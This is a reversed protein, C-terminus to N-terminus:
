RKRYESPTIGCHRKFYRSFLSPAPFSMQDSIENQTLDSHRLLVKIRSITASEIWFSATKGSVQTVVTSLYQKNLHLQGAYFGMDRRKQCHTNVLQIFESFIAMDRNSSQSVGECQMLIQNLYHLLSALLSHVCIPTKCESQLMFWLTQMLGSLLALNNPSPMFMYDYVRQKLYPYTMEQLVMDILDDCLYLGQMDFDDSYSDLQLISQRTVVLVAGKTLHRPILNITFDAEGSTVIGIQLLETQYPRNIELHPLTTQRISNSMSLRETTFQYSGMKESLESPIFSTTKKEKQM